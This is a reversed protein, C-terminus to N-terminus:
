DYWITARNMYLHLGNQPELFAKYTASGSLDFFYSDDVFTTMSVNKTKVSPRTGTLSGDSNCIEAGYALKGASIISASDVVLKSKGSGSPRFMDSYSPNYVLHSSVLFDKYGTYSEAYGIVGVGLMMAIILAVSLLIRKNKM